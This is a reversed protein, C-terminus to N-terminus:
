NMSPRPKYVVGQRGGIAATYCKYSCYKLLRMHTTYKSGCQGCVDTRLEGGFDYYPEKWTVLARDYFTKDTKTLGERFEDIDPNAQGPLSIDTDPNIQGGKQGPQVDSKTRSFAKRCADGCWKGKNIQKGCNKCVVKDPKM